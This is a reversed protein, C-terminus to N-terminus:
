ANRQKKEFKTLVSLTRKLSDVEASSEVSLEPRVALARMEAPEAAATESEFRKEVLINLKREFDKIAGLANSNATKLHAVETKLDAVAKALSSNGSSSQPKASERLRLRFRAFAKADVIEPEKVMLLLISEKDIIVCTVWPFLVLRSLVDRSITAILTDKGVLKANAIRGDEERTVIAIAQDEVLCKGLVGIATSPTMHDTCHQACNEAVLHADSPDFTEMAVAEMIAQASSGTTSVIEKTAWVRGMGRMVQPLTYGGRGLCDGKELYTLKNAALADNMSALERKYAAEIAADNTRCYKLGTMFERKQEGQEDFSEDLANHLIITSIWSLVPRQKVVDLAIRMREDHEVTPLDESKPLASNWEGIFAMAIGPKEKHTEKHTEMYDQTGLPIAQLDSCIRSAVLKVEADNEPARLLMFPTVGKRVVHYENGDFLHAPTGALGACRTGVAAERRWAMFERAEEGLTYSEWASDSFASDYFEAELVAFPVSGAYLTLALESESYLVSVAFTSYQTQMLAGGVLRLGSVTHVNRRGKHIKNWCTENYLFLDGPVMSDSGLLPPKCELADVNNTFAALRVRDLLSIAEDVALTDEAGALTTGLKCLVRPLTLSM